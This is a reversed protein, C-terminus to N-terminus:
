VNRVFQKVSAEDAQGSININNNNTYYPKCWMHCQMGHLEPMLLDEIVCLVGQM